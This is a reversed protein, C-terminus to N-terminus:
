HASRKQNLPQGQSLPRSNLSSRPNITPPAQRLAPRSQTSAIAASIEERVIGLYDLAKSFGASEALTTVIFQNLSIGQRGARRALAAHLAPMMRLLVKGSYNEEPPEPIPLGEALRIELWAARAEDLNALAEDASDGQAVCGMLDPHFAVVTGDEERVIEIPYNLSTYHAINRDM